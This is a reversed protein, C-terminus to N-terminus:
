RLIEYIAIGAAVSVNLSEKRGRMPIGVVDDCLGLIDDAVGDVEHGLVLAMPFEPKFDAISISRDTKELAIIRVKEKKLRNILIVPDEVKEWLVNKEAGLATKAVMKEPKSKAEGEAPSQTYGTLYIKDVGAGDCTRFIAGVNYASRINHAIIYLKAEGM